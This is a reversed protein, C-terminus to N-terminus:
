TQCLEISRACAIYRSVDLKGELSISPSVDWIRRALTDTALLMASPQPHRLLISYLRKM